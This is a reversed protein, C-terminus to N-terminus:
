DLRALQGLLGVARHHQAAAVAHHQHRGDRLPLGLQAEIEEGERDVVLLAEGGRAADGAAEEAALSPQGLALREDRAEDVAAQPREEGLAVLVVGLHDGRDEGGVVLVVGVHQRQGANAPTRTPRTPPFKMALGLSSSRACDSMSTIMAAFRSEIKMTSPPPLSTSSALM